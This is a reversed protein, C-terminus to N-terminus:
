SLKELINLSCARELAKLVEDSGPENAMQKEGGLDQRESGVEEKSGITRRGSLRWMGM